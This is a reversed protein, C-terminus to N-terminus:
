HILCKLVEEFYERTYIENGGGIVINHIFPSSCCVVLKDEFDITALESVDADVVVDSDM